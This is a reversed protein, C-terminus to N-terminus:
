SNKTESLHAQLNQLASGALDGLSLKNLRLVNTEIANIVSPLMAFDLSSFSKLNSYHSLMLAMESPFIVADGILRIFGEHSFGTSEAEKNM